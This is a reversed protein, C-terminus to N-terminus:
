KILNNNSNNNSSKNCWICVNYIIKKLLNNPVKTKNWMMNGHYYHLNYMNLYQFKNRHIGHLYRYFNKHTYLHKYTHM